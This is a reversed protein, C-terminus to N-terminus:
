VVEHHGHRRDMRGRVNYRSPRHWNPNSQTREQMRQRYNNKASIFCEVRETGQLACCRTTISTTSEGGNNPTSTTTAADDRRFSSRLASWYCLPEEGNCVRDYRAAKTNNVCRLKADMTGENCCRLMEQKRRNWVNIISRRSTEDLSRLKWQIGNRRHREDNSRSGSIAHDTSASSDRSRLRSCLHTMKQEDTWNGTWGGRMGYHHPRRSDDNGHHRHHHHRGRHHHHRSRSDSGVNSDPLNTPQAIDATPQSDSPVAADILEPETPENQEDLGYYTADLVEINSETASTAIVAVTVIAIRLFLM